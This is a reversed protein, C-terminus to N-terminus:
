RRIAVVLLLVAAVGAAVWVRKDTAVTKVDQATMVLPDVVYTQAYDTVTSVNNDAVTAVTVEAAGFSARLEDVRGGTWTTAVDSLQSWFEQVQEEGVSEGMDSDVWSSAWGLLGGISDYIAEADALADELEATSWGNQGAHREVMFRATQYASEVDDVFGAQDIGM